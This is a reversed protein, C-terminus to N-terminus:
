YYILLSKNNIMASINLSNLMHKGDRQKTPNQSSANKEQKIINIGTIIKSQIAGIGAAPLTGVASVQNPQSVINQTGLCIQASYLKKNISLSFRYSSKQACISSVGQQQICVAADGFLTLM